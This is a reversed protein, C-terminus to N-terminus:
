RREDVALTALGTQADLQKSLVSPTETLILEVTPRVYGVFLHGARARGEADGVVAHAHVAPKGDRVGIDGVLSALEVQEPVPILKYEMLGWDFYGLTARSFGGRGTFYAGTLGLNDVLQRLGAVVEEDATFAVAYTKQGETDSLCKSHM